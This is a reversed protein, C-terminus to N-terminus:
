KGESLGEFTEIFAHIAHAREDTCPVSEGDPSEPEKCLYAHIIDAASDGFCESVADLVWEVGDGFAEQESEKSMKHIGGGRIIFPFAASAVRM